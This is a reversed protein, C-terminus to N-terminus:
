IDGNGVPSDSNWRRGYNIDVNISVSLLNAEFEIDGRLCDMSFGEALGLRIDVLNM